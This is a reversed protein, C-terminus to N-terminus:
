TKLESPLFDVNNELARTALAKAEGLDTPRSKLRRWDFTPGAGERTRWQAVYVVLPAHDGTRARHPTYDDECSIYAAPLHDYGAYHAMPWARPEFSRYRGTPAEAVRWTLKVTAM